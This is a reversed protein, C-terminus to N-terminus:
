LNGIINVIYVNWHYTIKNNPEVYKEVKIKIEVIDNNIMVNKKYGESTKTLTTLKRLVTATARLDGNDTQYVEGILKIDEAEYKAKVYNKGATKILNLYRWADMKRDPNNRSFIKVMALTDKNFIDEFAEKINKDAEIRNIIRNCYSQFNGVLLITKQSVENIAEESNFYKQFKDKQELFKVSESEVKELVENGNQTARGTESDKEQWNDNERIEKM